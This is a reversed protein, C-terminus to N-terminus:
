EWARLWLQRDCDLLRCGVGEIEAMEESLVGVGHGEIAVVELLREGLEGAVASLREDVLEEGGAREAGGGLANQEAKGGRAGAEGALLGNRLGLRRGLPLAEGGLLTDLWLRAIRAAVKGEVLLRALPLALPTVLSQVLLALVIGDDLDVYLGLLCSLLTGGDPAIASSLALLPDLAVLTQHALVFTDRLCLRRISSFPNPRCNRTSM